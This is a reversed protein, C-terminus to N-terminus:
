NYSWMMPFFMKRELRGLNAKLIDESPERIIRFKGLVFSKPV